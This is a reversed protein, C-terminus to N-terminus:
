PLVTVTPPATTWNWGYAGDFRYTGPRLYYRDDIGDTRFDFRFRKAEWPAFHTVEPVEARMDYRAAGAAGSVRYSFSAPPGADGSAPLDIVLSRDSANIASIIMAFHGNFASAAPVASVVHVTVSLASPPAHVANPDQPPAKGTRCPGECVVDGACQGLFMEGPHRGSRLLAHLMEHRVLDGRFQDDGALVIRNPFSYWVGAVTDGDPSVISTAGPVVYWSVDRLSGTLGSCERTINWWWDYVAPPEFRVAGVPLPATPVDCAMLGYLLLCVTWRRGRFARRPRRVHQRM